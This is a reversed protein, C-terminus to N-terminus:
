GIAGNFAQVVSGSSNIGAGLTFRASPVNPATTSTRSTIRGNVYFRITSTDRTMVVDYWTNANTFAFGSDIAAGNVAGVLESGATTLGTSASIAFGYGGDATDEKGNYLM